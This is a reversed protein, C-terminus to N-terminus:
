LSRYVEERAEYQVRNRGYRERHVSSQTEYPFALFIPRALAFIGLLLLLLISQVGLLVEWRDELVPIHTILEQLREWQVFGAFQLLIGFYQVFCLAREIDLVWRVGNCRPYAAPSSRLPGIPASRGLDM